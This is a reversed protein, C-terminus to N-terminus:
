RCSTSEAMRSLFVTASSPGVLRKRGGREVEATPFKDILRLEHTKAEIVVVNGTGGAPVWVRGRVRDVALYDLSVGDPPAGPLSLPTLTFSPGAAEEATAGGRPPFEPTLYQIALGGALRVTLGAGAAARCIGVAEDLATPGSGTM